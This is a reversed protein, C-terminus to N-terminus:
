LSMPRFIRLRLTESTALNRARAAIEVRLVQSAGRPLMIKVPSWAPYSSVAIKWTPFKTPLRDAAYSRWRVEDVDFPIRVKLELEGLRAVSAANKEEVRLPVYTPEQPTDTWGFIGLRHDDLRLPLLVDEVPWILPAGTAVVTADMRYYTRPPIAVARVHVPQRIERSAASVELRIHPELKFHLPGQLLSVLELRGSVPSVFLGECRGPRRRYGLAGEIPHVDECRIQPGPFRTPQAASLAFVVMASTIWSACIAMLTQM